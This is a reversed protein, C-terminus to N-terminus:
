LEMLWIPVRYRQDFPSQYSIGLRLFVKEPIGIDALFLKGTKEPVLGTKPLALTLTWEPHIAEGLANGYTADVGSPVDLSLVPAPSLNAWQILDLVRGRPLGKLSYGLLADIILDASEDAVDRWNKIKGSTAKFVQLQWATVETLREPVALVVSVTGGHNSLHRAACIGGGGNGGPGALVIINKKQWGQGLIDMTQLALNRGANEMMQYLNPGMENMAIRDIERMQATTIAPVSLGTDTQFSRNPIVPM